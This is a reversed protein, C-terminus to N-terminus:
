VPKKFTIKFNLQEILSPNNNNADPPTKKVWEHCQPCKKASSSIQEYCYPCSKTLKMNLRFPTTMSISRHIERIANAIESAPNEFSELLVGSYQGLEIYFEHTEVRNTATKYSVKFEVRNNKQEAEEWDM